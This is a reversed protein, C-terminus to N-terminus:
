IFLMLSFNPVALAIITGVFIFPGFKPLNRLVIIQMVNNKKLIKIEKKGILKKNKLIQMVKKSNNESVLEDEEIKNISIKKEFFNKRIGNQLAFFVLGFFIPVALFLVFYGNIFGSYLMVLFYAALAAGLIIAKRIGNKEEKIKIGTRFYKVPYFVSYFLLSSIAAFFFLTVLFTIENFPNLLAIGTFLKVDGGGIKGLKYFLFLLAFIIAASAINIWYFQVVSLIIGLVIIPYTIYDYIYGTKADTISGALTGFFLVGSQILQLM